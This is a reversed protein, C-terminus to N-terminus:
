EVPQPQERRLVFFFPQETGKLDMLGLMTNDNIKRFIDSIPLTDYIMTASVKGRYHTLRLRACSQTTSVLGIGLQFVRGAAKSKPIPLRDLWQVIPLAWLPNVSATGGGMTEFVLPHVHEAHEFRKGHWYYAELAGDLPHGTFFSEGRWSGILESVEVTDLRDFIELAEATSSKGTGIVDLFTTM